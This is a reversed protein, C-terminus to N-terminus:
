TSSERNNLKPVYDWSDRNLEEEKKFSRKFFGAPHVCVHIGVTCCTPSINAYAFIMKCLSCVISTKGTSEAFTRVPAQLLVAPNLAIELQITADRGADLNGLRCELRECLDYSLRVMTRTTTSSFFFILQNIFSAQPVDCDDIVSVTKDCLGVKWDTVQLLRHRYPALIKPLAIQVVTNIARSPGSNLVKYTYNFKEPYCDAPILDEDGFVFSTPSVFSHVCLLVNPAALTIHIFDDCILTMSNDHLFEENEYNDSSTNIKIHVDGPTSNQNVDLLFSLNMQALAPLVLGTISCDVSVDTTNVEETVDCSITNDNHLVKIYHINNPFRVTVRPLFAEDGSNVVLVKLVIQGSGLAFFTQVNWPLVLESSLQMDTSCNKLSCSRAFQTQNTITHRHGASQQLIPKLPPFTRSSGRHSSKERLGYSVEFQVPTYIDKVDKRQYAVHTACTPQGHQAKVHGRTSNSSGNGHFYFRHPFSPKHLLDTTLNYQLEIAGRFHKSVFSFCVTVNFCATQTRHDQCLAVRQDLQEPLILSAQLQIVPRTRHPVVSFVRLSQHNESITFVITEPRDPYGDDDLDGLDAITQGFRAAYANNGTLQFEAEKLKAQGENIYVYVRGEERYTGTAMPAGVLLDSLGDANLDVVCVSSGFFSGMQFSVWIQNNELSIIIVKGRQHHQPAGGVVELSSPSQFHGAGVAYGLYSGYNVVGNEDLYVSLRRSTINQVLVSGKWYFTGPAGMIILDQTLFNSIGAQCSAYDEGFKRQYDKYCPLYPKYSKLDSEYLYCVGHPLKNSQHDKRSYYVNTWRHACALIRGDKGPQRSLSVGLWQHDREPECTKGCSYVETCVFLFLNHPSKATIKCHYIAGPSEVLSSPFSAVPAGVVLWKHSHHRHLLVSYGFMSSNPGNFVLSHEQDLNYGAGPCVLVLVQVLVPALCFLVGVTDRKRTFLLVATM